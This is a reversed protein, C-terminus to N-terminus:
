RIAKLVTRVGLLLMTTSFLKKLKSDDVYKSVYGGLYSGTVCGASLPVAFPLLMTKQMLHTAAGSLATPVMVLLSTTLATRYDYNLLLVLCPVTVAGGGIGFFGALFGSFSGVFCLREISYQCEEANKKINENIGDESTVFNRKLFDSAIITPAISIMLAGQALRISRDPIRKSFKAGFMAFITSFSIITLTAVVDVDGLQRPLIGFLLDGNISACDDKRTVQEDVSINKKELISRRIHSVSAGVSTSLVAAMSTGISHHPSLGLPGSLAPVIIFAGGLGVLSGLGGAAVGLFFVGMKVKKTSTPSSSCSSFSIKIISSVAVRRSRVLVM